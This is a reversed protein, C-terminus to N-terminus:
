QGVLRLAPRASAEAPAGDLPLPLPLTTLMTLQPRSEARLPPSAAPGDVPLLCDDPSVDVRTREFTPRGPRGFSATVVLEPRTWCAIFPPAEAFPCHDVQLANLVPFLENRLREDSPPQISAVFWLQGDAGYGGLLLEISRSGGVIQMSYGGVVLEQSDRGVALWGTGGPAYLGDRPKALIGELQSETSAQFLARGENEFYEALYLCDAPHLTEALLRKRRVLPEGLLWHQGRFLLDSALFCAPKRLAEAHILQADVLRLRWQPADFDPHGHEDVIVIEGDVLLPQEAASHGLFGLEPFRATLDAQRRNYLRVRGDAISALARIGNWRTEFLYEASDFAEGVPRARMPEVNGPVDLV